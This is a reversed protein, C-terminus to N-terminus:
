CKWNQTFNLWKWEPEASSYLFCYEWWWVIIDTLVLTDDRLSTRQKLYCVTLNTSSLLKTSPLFYLFSLEPYCPCQIGFHLAHVPRSNSRTWVGLEVVNLNHSRLFVAREAWSWDTFGDDLLHFFCYLAQLVTLFPEISIHNAFVM